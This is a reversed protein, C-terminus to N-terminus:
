KGAAFNLDPVQYSRGTSKVEPRVRYVQLLRGSLGILPPPWPKGKADEGKPRRLDDLWAEVAAENTWLQASGPSPTRTINGYNWGASVFWVEGGDQEWGLALGEFPARAAREIDRALERLQGAVQRGLASLEGLQDKIEPPRDRHIAAATAALADALELAQGILDQHTWLKM